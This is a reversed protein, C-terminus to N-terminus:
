CPFIRNRMRFILTPLCLILLCVVTIYEKLSERLPSTNMVHNRRNWGSNNVDIIMLQWCKSLLATTKKANGLSHKRCKLDMHGPFWVLRVMYFHSSSYAQTPLVIYLRIYIIWLLLLSRTLRVTCHQLNSSIQLTVLTNVSKM